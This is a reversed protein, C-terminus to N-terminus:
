VLEWFHDDVFKSIEADLPKSDRVISTVFMELATGADGGVYLADVSQENTVDKGKEDFYIKLKESRVTAIKQTIGGENLSTTFVSSNRMEECCSFFTLLLGVGITVIKKEIRVDCVRHFIKNM